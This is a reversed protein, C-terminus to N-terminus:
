GPVTIIDAYHKAKGVHTSTTISVFNNTEATYDMVVKKEVGSVFDTYGIRLDYSYLNKGDSSMNKNSASEGNIWAKIVEINKMTMKKWKSTFREKYM